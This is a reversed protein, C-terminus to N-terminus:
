GRPGSTMRVGAGAEPGLPSIMKLLMEEADDEFGEAKIIESARTPDSLPILAQLIELEGIGAATKLAICDRASPDSVRALAEVLALNGTKVASLLASSGRAGADSYPLVELAMAVIFKGRERQAEHVGLGPTWGPHCSLLERLAESDRAKADSVPLLLRALEMVDEDSIQRENVRKFKGARKVIARLAASDDALPDSVPLLLKAMEVDGEYAARVLAASGGAKPDSVEILVRATELSGSGVANLLALGNNASPNSLPILARVMAANGNAAALALAASEQAKAANSFPLLETLADMRNAKVALRLAESDGASPDAAAILEKILEIPAEAVSLRLAELGNKASRAPTVQARAKEWDKKVIADILDFSDDEEIKAYPRMLAEIRPSCSKALDWLEALERKIEGAKEPSAAKQTFNLLVQADAILNCKMAVRLAPIAHDIPDCLEIVLEMVSNPLEKGWNSERLEALDEGHYFRGAKGKGGNWDEVARSLASSGPALPGSLPALKLFAEWAGQAAANSLAESGHAGPDSKDLLLDVLIWDGQRSAIRLAESDAARVDSKELLAKVTDLDGSEVALRLAKSEQAMPDSLPLLLLAMEALGAAAALRLAKSESAAPNAGAEILGKVIKVEGAKVAQELSAQIVLPDGVRGLAWKALELSGNAASFKLVRGEQGAGGESELWNKALEVSGGKGVSESVQTSVSEDYPRSLREMMEFVPLSGSRAAAQLASCDGDRVSGPGGGEIIEQCLALDGARAAYVLGKFGEPFIARLVDSAGAKSAQDALKRWERGDYLGAKAWARLNAVEEGGLGQTEDYLGLPGWDYIGVGNCDSIASSLNLSFKDIGLRANIEKLMARAPALMEKSAPANCAGKIQIISLGHAEVTVWPKNQPDRLSYIQAWGEKVQREYGGVCHRMLRGERELAPKSIVSVWRWNAWREGLGALDELGKVAESGAADEETEQVLAALREQEKRWTAEGGLAQDMSVKSWDTTLAPGEESRLWDCVGALRNREEGRLSLEEVSSGEALAKKLWEPETAGPASRYPSREGLRLVWKRAVTMLWGAVKGERDNRTDVPGAKEEALAALWSRLEPENSCNIVGAARDIVLDSMAPIVHAELPM